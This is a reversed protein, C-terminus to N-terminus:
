TTAPKVTTVTTVPKVTTVTTASKTVATTATAGTDGGIVPTQAIGTTVDVSLTVKGYRASTIGNTLQKGDKYIAVSIEHSSGDLKWFSAQVTGNVNELTYIREGSNTAKQLNDPQGYIGKWGGIYNAYVVVGTSPIAVPTPTAAVITGASSTTTTPAATVTGGAPTGSEPVSTTGSGLKPLVVMVAVAAIIIILVVAIVMYVM